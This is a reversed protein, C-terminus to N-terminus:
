LRPAHLRLVSFVSPLQGKEPPDHGRRGPDCGAGYRFATQFLDFGSRLHVARPKCGCVAVSLSPSRGVAQCGFMKKFYAAPTMTASFFVAARCRGLADGLQGSPDVCFLKVKLDADQKEYCTVYSADYAEFVRIFAIVAFYLDLLAERFVAKENRGLWEEALQSFRRLAPYLDDPPRKDSWTPSGATVSEKLRHMQSNVRGMSKYLRPLTDHVERRLNLFPQKFIEASFMERSRDVLNHAEDIL